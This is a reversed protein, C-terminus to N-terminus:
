FLIIYIIFLIFIIYGINSSIFQKVANTLEEGELHDLNGLLENLTAYKPTIQKQNPNQPEQASTKIQHDASATKTSNTIEAIQNNSTQSSNAQSLQVSEAIDQKLSDTFEKM